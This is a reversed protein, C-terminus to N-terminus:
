KYWFAPSFLKEQAQEESGNFLSFYSGMGAIIIHDLLKLGVKSLAEAVWRTSDKDAQSPIAAGSPHNHALIVGEAGTKLAQDIIRRTNLDSEAAEGENILAINLLKGNIGLYMAYVREKKGYGLLPTLAEAAQWSTQIRGECVNSEATYLLPKLQPFTLAALKPMGKISELEPTSANFVANLSGFERILERAIPVTDRRPLYPYLLFELKEHDALINIGGKAVKERVRQRRGEAM